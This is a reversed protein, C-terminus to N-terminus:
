AYRTLEVIRAAVRRHAADVEAPDSSDVSVVCAREDAGLNDAREFQRELVAVDAESADRHERERQRVRAALTDRAAVVDVVVFPRGLEDALRRARVRERRSLFAADLIVCHGNVLLERALALLRDYTRSSSAADYLGAGPESGSDAREDLGHLRKREIDSRIRIAGLSQLLRTSLWTKGSGSYGHMVILAPQRGSIWQEAVGCYHRMDALDAAASPPSDRESALIAAVKARILCHYVFYLGYLAMGDYDGSSELYRNLLVFALDERGAATLDMSLFTLDSIVDLMRLEDSFEICDFAVIGDQPLRVLNRLHLDGHCERVFGSRRREDIVRKQRGAEADTWAEFFGMADAPLRPRLYLFNEHMPKLVADFGGFRVERNVPARAHRDAIMEALERMDDADLTSRELEATLLASQPFQRMRVAYEIADGAGGVRPASPTGTIAVVDLYLTPAWRRNLRLEEECWHKRLALTSFDLFELRIPKKIKYAYDGTLVVWSIHTELLEPTDVPHPYAGPV